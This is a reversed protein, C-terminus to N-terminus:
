KKKVVVNQRWEHRCSESRVGNPMTWWGGGRDFVSYGLRLTLAEIDKRTYFRELGMLRACFPRSPHAPTNRQWIPVEPKWEYSYLVEITTKIPVDIVESIPKLLTRENKVVNYSLIKADIFDKIRQEVYEVKARVASAINEISIKPDKKLVELIRKDVEKDVVFEEAFAEAQSFVSRSKLVEFDSVPSGYESFTQIVSELLDASFQYDDTQPDEDIGLMVNIDNDSLGLGSKLMTVAMEKTIKGKSFERIVRQLHQYQRGTLNKLNENIEVGNLETPTEPETDTTVAGSPVDGGVKPALGVLGRIENVTMSELVKNAVLPSLTNIADSVVQAETPAPTELVPLNLKTRIEEKTMNQSIVAESFVIGVPEVPKIYLDSTAGKIRALMNFIGELFQQKDNAYTSKFIDYATMLETAGGLQGETKIGFLMPSVIQHGAFINQQIIADVRSFDEKTIDSAGLDEVIPKRAPDNTFSLIFKKGDSGSFRDSFRREINRKEDPSPEGNPLTIMKSASFGTQANGLVHKSVEIDSEIYNLSGMYGPLAYTDLGPRYEKIYLIQKGVRNQTNFANIIIPEEKRDTWDKKYWFQTNDKNSRIKTYDIHCVQTIQGGTVSWIVELYAGGFVEIDIAVKRTLDDLSEYYNPQKIFQDAIPDEEKTDWGNGIIYNVKGKVIANHKASKNYLTLLYSPYENKEGFEIYGGSAGKKERYEPQRAEAFNLIILDDMM